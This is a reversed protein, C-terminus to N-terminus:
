LQNSSDARNNRSYIPPLLNYEESYKFIAQVHFLIGLFLLFLLFSSIVFM